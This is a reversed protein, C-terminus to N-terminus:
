LRQSKLSEAGPAEVGKKPNVAQSRLSGDKVTTVPRGGGGVRGGFVLWLKLGSGSWHCDQPQATSQFYHVTRVTAGRLPSQGQPENTPFINPGPRSAPRMQPKKPQTSNVAGKFFPCAKLLEKVM